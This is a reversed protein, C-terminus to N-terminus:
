SYRSPGNNVFAIDGKPTRTSIEIDTQLGGNERNCLQVTGDMVDLLRRGIIVGLDNVDPEGSAIAEPDFVKECDEIAQGEDTIRIRLLAPELPQAYVTVVKGAESRNISWGLFSYLVQRLKGHDCVITTTEPALDYELKVDRKQAYRMVAACSERLMERVPFEQLFLETQGGELRSLDVLQNLSAQLQLGSDQIKQCFRRQAETLQEQDLLIESFGLISTLPTRLEHSMRALFLSRYHSIRRLERNVEELENSRQKLQGILHEVRVSETDGEGLSANKIDTSTGTTEAMM